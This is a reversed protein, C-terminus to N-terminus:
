KYYDEKQKWNYKFLISGLRLSRITVRMKPIIFAPHNIKLSSSQHAIQQYNQFTVNHNCQGQPFFHFKNRPVLLLKFKKYAIQLKNMLVHDKSHVSFLCSLNQLKQTYITYIQTFRHYSCCLSKKILCNLYFSKYPLLKNYYQIASNQPNSPQFRFDQYPNKYCNQNNLNFNLILQGRKEFSARNKNLDMQFNNALAKM